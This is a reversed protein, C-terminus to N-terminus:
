VSVSDPINKVLVRSAQLALKKKIEATLAEDVKAKKAAPSSEDGTAALARKKGATADESTQLQEAQKKSKKKKKKQSKEVTQESGKQHVAKPGQPTNTSETHVVKISSGMFESGDLQSVAATADSASKFSVVAEGISQKNGSVLSVQIYM